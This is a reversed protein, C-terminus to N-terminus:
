SGCLCRSALRLRALSRETSPAAPYVSRDTLLEMLAPPRLVTVPVVLNRLFVERKLDWQRVATDVVGAGASTYVTHAVNAHRGAQARDEDEDTRMKMPIM